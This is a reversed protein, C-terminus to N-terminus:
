GDVRAVGAEALVAVMESFRRPHLVLRPPDAETEAWQRGAAIAEPDRDFAHVTAGADLFARTYGGAGFTADVIVDGPQPALAQLVEDLLVPVHPASVQAEGQEARRGRAQPLGGAPRGLGAGHRLAPCAGVAHLVPRRRPLLDGRR